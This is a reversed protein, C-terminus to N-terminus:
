CHCCLADEQFWVAEQRATSVATLLLLLLSGWSALALFCMHRNSRFLSSLFPCGWQELSRKTQYLASSIFNWPLWFPEGISFCFAVQTLICLLLILFFHHLLSPLLLLSTFHRSPSVVFDSNLAAWLSCCISNCMGSPRQTCCFACIEQQCQHSICTNKRHLVSYLRWVLFCENKCLCFLNSSIIKGHTHQLIQSSLYNANGPFTMFTCDSQITGPSKLSVNM